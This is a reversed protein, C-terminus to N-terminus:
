IYNILELEEGAAEGAWLLIDEADTFTSFTGNILNGDWNQLFTSRGELVGVWEGDRTVVWGGSDGAMCGADERHKIYAATGVEVRHKVRVVDAFGSRVMPDMNYPLGSTSEVVGESLM